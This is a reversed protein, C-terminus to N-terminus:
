KDPPSEVWMVNWDDDGFQWYIRQHQIYVKPKVVTLKDDVAVTVPYLLGDIIFRYVAQVPAPATSLWAYCVSPLARMGPHEPARIGRSYTLTYGHSAYSVHTNTVVANITVAPVGCQKIAARVGATLLYADALSLRSMTNSVIQAANADTLYLHPM